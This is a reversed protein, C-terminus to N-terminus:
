KLTLIFCCKRTTFSISLEQPLSFSFKYLHVLDCSWSPQYAWVHYVGKLFTSQDIRAHIFRPRTSVKVQKVIFFHSFIINLFNQLRVQINTSVSMKFSNIFNHSYELDLDYRLAHKPTGPWGWTKPNRALGLM